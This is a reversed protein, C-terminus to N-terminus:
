RPFAPRALRAQRRSLAVLAIGAAFAALAAIFFFVPLPVVSWLTGFYGSVIGGAFKSLYWVGIMVSVVQVPSIQSILSLSVPVCYLEGITLLTCFGATWGWSVPRGFHEYSFAAGVMVLFSLAVFGCGIAMKTVSSPERNRRAQRKWLVVLPPTLFLILLPNISQFWTAPVLFSWGGVRLLRDTYVEIWLAMTNGTQEYAIRFLAMIAAILLILRIASWDAASLSTRREESWITAAPDPPLTDQRLLYVGVGIIMGVGAAAFGWHWGYWEGLTGCIFPALFAGINMGMYYISYAQDRRPDDDRYLRGIQSALPPVYAGNGLAILVLAPFFLRPFAMMFHGAAMTLGGIIVSLRLGLLRDALMGGFFPTLYAAADYYGYIVSASPQSFALQQTMYYVLMAQMGFFSFWAWSESFFLVYLGPPHGRWINRGKVLM